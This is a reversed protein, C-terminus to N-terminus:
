KMLMEPKGFWKAIGPSLHEAYAFDFAAHDKQGLKKEALARGYISLPARGTLMMAANFDAIAEKYRGLRDYLLGRANLGDTYTAEIRVAENCDPLAKEVLDRNAITRIMCRWAYSRAMDGLAVSADAAAIAAESDGAIIEIEALLMRTDADEPQLEIAKQVNSRASAFDHRYLYTTAFNFYLQPNEASNPQAKTLDTLALDFLKAYTYQGARAILSRSIDPWAKLAADIDSQAAPYQKLENHLTSRNFYFTALDQGDYANSQIAATCVAIRQQFTHEGLMIGRQSLTCAPYKAMIEDHRATEALAPFTAALSLAIIAAISSIRM